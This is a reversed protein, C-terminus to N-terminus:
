CEDGKYYQSIATIHVGTGSFPMGFSQGQFSPKKNITAEDVGEELLLLNTELYNTIM